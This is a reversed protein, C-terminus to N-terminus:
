NRPGRCGVIRPDSGNLMSLSREFPRLKGGSSAQLAKAERSEVAQKYSSDQAQHVNRLGFVPDSGGRLTQRRSARM